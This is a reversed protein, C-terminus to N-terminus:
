GFRSLDQATDIDVLSTGEDPDITTADNLRIARAGRDARLTRLKEFASRPFAAPCGFGAEDYRTFVTGDANALRRLHDPTVLPMDALIVVLRDCTAAAAELGAAISTGMGKDAQANVVIQWGEAAVISSHPGTVLYRDSLGAERAADAAWSWLPKGKFPATLKDGGFRRSRGAALLIVGTGPDIRTM